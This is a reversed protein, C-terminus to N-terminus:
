DFVLCAIDTKYSATHISIKRLKAKPVQKKYM